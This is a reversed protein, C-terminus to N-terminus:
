DGEKKMFLDVAKLAEKFASMLIKDEIDLLMQKTENDSVDRLKGIIGDINEMDKKELATKLEGFLADLKEPPLERSVGGPKKYGENLAKQINEITEKLNAFFAPLLKRVTEGKGAKGAAELEAAAKSLAVAGITAAASKIAHANIAIEGTNCDSAGDFCPLREEADRYFQSLVLKYGKASGGTMTIGKKVDVGPIIIGTEGSFTERKIETGTKIRKEVPIWKAMIEDLKPIEIPKSLYDSFGHQLFLEKM